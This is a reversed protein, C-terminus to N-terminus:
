SRVVQEKRFGEEIYNALCDVAKSGKGGGRHMVISARPLDPFGEEPLLIRIGAPVVSEVMLTVALGASVAALLGSISHSQYAVRYSLDTADLAQFAWDRFFCEPGFIALPLPNQEHAFHRESTVWVVRDRRLVEGSHPHERGTILALDLEGREMAVSLQSSPECRVSVQVRPFTQAFKALIGPLFRMAYDDPTGLRVAGAIDPQLLSAVADDQLKLIRRAYGLLVEGEPTLAMSRGERVFLPRGVIEELRKVQMSVASQTRHVESAARTFSGTDAIAVFTQLFEIPFNM